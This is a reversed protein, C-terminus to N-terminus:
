ESSLLKYRIIYVGMFKRVKIIIVTMEGSDLGPYGDSCFNLHEGSLLNYGFKSDPHAEKIRVRVVKGIADEGKNLAQEFANADLYDITGEEAWKDTIEKLDATSPSEFIKIGGFIVLLIMMMFVFYLMAKLLFKVSPIRYYRKQIDINMRPCIDNLEIYEHIDKSRKKDLLLSEFQENSLPKNLKNNFILESLIILLSWIVMCIGLIIIAKLLWFMTSKQIYPRYSLFAVLLIISFIIIKKNSIRKRYMNKLYYGM